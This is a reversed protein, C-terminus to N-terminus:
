MRSDHSIEIRGNRQATARRSRAEGGEMVWASRFSQGYDYFGKGQKECADAYVKSISVAPESGDSMSMVLHFPSPSLPLPSALLPSLRPSPLLPQTTLSPAADVSILALQTKDPSLLRADSYLYTSFFFSTPSRRPYLNAPRACPPAHCLGVPLGFAQERGVM